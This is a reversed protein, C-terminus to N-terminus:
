EPEIMSSTAPRGRSFAPALLLLGMSGLWTWYGALVWSGGPLDPESLSVFYFSGALAVSVGGWVAARTPRGRSLGYWGLVLTLNAWGAPHLMCGMPFTSVVALLCQFGTWVESSNGPRVAPMFLSVSYTCFSLTALRECWWRTRAAVKEM